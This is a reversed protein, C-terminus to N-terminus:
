RRRRVNASQCRGPTPCQGVPLTRADSMPRSAADTRALADSMSRNADDATTKRALAPCRITASQCRGSHNEPRTDSMPRSIVPNSTTGKQWCHPMYRRRMHAHMNTSFSPQRLGTGPTQSSPEAAILHSPNSDNSRQIQSWDGHVAGSLVRQWVCMGQM